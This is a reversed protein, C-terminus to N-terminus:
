KMFGRIFGAVALLAILFVALLGISVGRSFVSPPPAGPAAPRSRRWLAWGSGAGILAVGGLVVLGGYFLVYIANDPNDGMMLSFVGRVGLQFLAYAGAVVLLATLIKGAIEEGLDRKEEGM